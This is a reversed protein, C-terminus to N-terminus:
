SASLPLLPLVCIRRRKEGQAAMSAGHLVFAHMAAASAQMCGHFLARLQIVPWAAQAHWRVLGACASISTTAGPAPSTEGGQPACCEVLSTTKGSHSSSPVVLGEDSSGSGKELKLNVYAEM